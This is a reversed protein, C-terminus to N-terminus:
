PVCFVSLFSVFSSVFVLLVAVVSVPIPAAFGLEVIGLVFVLLRGKLASIWKPLEKSVCSSSKSVLLFKAFMVEYFCSLSMYAQRIVLQEPSLYQWHTPEPSSIGKFLAKAYAKLPTSMGISPLQLALVVGLLSYYSVYPSFVTPRLGQRLRPLLRLIAQPTNDHYLASGSQSELYALVLGGLTPRTIVIDMNKEFLPMMPIRHVIHEVHIRLEFLDQTAAAYSRSSEIQFHDSITDLTPYTVGVQEVNTRVQATKIQKMPKVVSVQM